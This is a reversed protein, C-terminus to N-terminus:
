FLCNGGKKQEEDSVGFYGTYTEYNLKLIVSFKLNEGEGGKARKSIKM